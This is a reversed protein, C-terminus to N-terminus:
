TDFFTFALMDNTIAFFDIINTENPKNESIKRPNINENPVIKVISPFSCVVYREHITIAYTAPRDMITKGQVSGSTNMITGSLM